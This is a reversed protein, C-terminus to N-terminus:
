TRWTTRGEHCRFRAHLLTDLHCHCPPEAGGGERDVCILGGETSGGRDAHSREAGAGDRRSAQHSSPGRLDDPDAGGLGPGPRAGHFASSGARQVRLTVPEARRVADRQGRRRKAAPQGAGTAASRCRGRLCCWVSAPDTIVHVARPEAQARRDRRGPGRVPRPGDAVLRARPAPTTWCATSWGSWGGRKASWPRRHARRRSARVSSSPTARSAGWHRASRTPWCPPWRAWRRWPRVGSCSRRPTGLENPVATCASAWSSCYCRRPPLCPWPTALQASGPSRGAVHVSHGPTLAGPYFPRRWFPSRWPRGAKPPPASEDPPLNAMHRRWM